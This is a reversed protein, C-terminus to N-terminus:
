KEVEGCCHHQSDCDDICTKQSFRNLCHWHGPRSHHYHNPAGLIEGHLGHKCLPHRFSFVGQRKELDRGLTEGRVVGCIAEEIRGNFSRLEFGHKVGGLIGVRDLEVLQSNMINGFINMDQQIQFNWEMGNNFVRISYFSGVIQLNGHFNITDKRFSHKLSSIYRVIWRENLIWGRSYKNCSMKRVVNSSQLCHEQKPESKGRGLRKELSVDDVVEVSVPWGLMLSNGFLESGFDRLVAFSNNTFNYRVVKGPVSLVLFSDRDGDGDRVISATLFKYYFKDSAELNKSISEPFANMVNEIDVQFKVFWGSYDREMEYVKFQTTKPGHIDILHLHGCSEQMYRVRKQDPMPPMAMEGFREKEVDFHLGTEVNNGFWNVNGNWYVGLKYNLDRFLPRQVRKWERTESSYVELQFSATGSFVVLVVKYHPSKTPDFALTVSHVRGIGQSDPLAAFSRTSPNYVYFRRRNDEVKFSSCCLLGNCSSQVAMGCKEDGFELTRFPPDSGDLSIFDFEPVPLTSNSKKFVIGSVPKKRRTHFYPHTILSLWRKSVSKFRLLSKVPLYLFIETLLDDSSAVIAASNSIM